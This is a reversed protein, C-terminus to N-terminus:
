IAQRNFFYHMLYTWAIIAPVVFLAARFLARPNNFGQGAELMTERAKIFYSM